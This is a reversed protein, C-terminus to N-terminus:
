RSTRSSLSTGRRVGASRVIAVELGKYLDGSYKLDVTGFPAQSGMNRKLRAYWNSKYKGIDSSQGNEGVTLQETLRTKILGANDKVVQLALKKVDIKKAKEALERLM